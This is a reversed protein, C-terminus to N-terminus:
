LSRVREYWRMLIAALKQSDHRVTPTSEDMVDALILRCNQRTLAERDIAVATSGQQAYRELHAASPPYKQVLVADFLRDGTVADLARVHDSM